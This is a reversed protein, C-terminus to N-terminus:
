VELNKLDLHFTATNLFKVAHMPVSVLHMQSIKFLACICWLVVTPQSM